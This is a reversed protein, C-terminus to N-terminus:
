DVHVVFFDFLLVDEEEIAETIQAVARNLKNEFM